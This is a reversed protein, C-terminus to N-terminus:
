GLRPAICNVNIYPAYNIAFDKTLAILGSKSSDYDIAEPSPCNIANTSSINIIKGYKNKYMVDAIARSLFFPAILNVNLTLNWDEITRDSMSKDFVVGANNVLIDIKDFKEFSKDLLNKIGDQTSLDSVVVLTEVEYNKRIEKEVELAQQVSQNSNIIVSCGNKALEIVTAKGIGRSSGTVLAVKNKLSDYNVM